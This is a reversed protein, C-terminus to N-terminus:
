RKIRTADFKVSYGLIAGGILCIFFIVMLIINQTSKVDASVNGGYKFANYIAIIITYIVAAIIYAIFGGAAGLLCGIVGQLHAKNLNEKDKRIAEEEAARIENEIKIEITRSVLIEELKKM